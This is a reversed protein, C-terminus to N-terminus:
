RALEAADCGPLELEKFGKPLVLFFTPGIQIVDGVSIGRTYNKRFSIGFPIAGSRLVLGINAPTVPNKFEAEWVLDYLNNLMWRQITAIEEIESRNPKGRFFYARVRL